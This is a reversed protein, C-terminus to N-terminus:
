PVVPPPPSSVVGGVAGPVGVWTLMVAFLTVTEQAADVSLTPTTAYPMRSPSRGHPVTGAGVVVPVQWPSVASASWAILTTAKSAAPLAEGCLGASVTWVGAPGGGDSLGYPSGFRTDM